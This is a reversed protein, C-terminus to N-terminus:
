NAFRNILERVESDILAALKRAEKLRVGRPAVKRGLGLLGRKLAQIRAIRGKTVEEVPILEGTRVKLEMELLKAKTEKYTAEAKQQRKKNEDPERGENKKYFDLISKVYYGETTIYMGAKLWRRITRTDRGVYEAAEAQTKLIQEDAIGNKSRGKRRQGKAGKNSQAKKEHEALEELEPRTLPQNNKIKNLLFLHRQKQAIEIADVDSNKM